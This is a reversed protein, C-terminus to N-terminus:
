KLYELFYEKDRLLNLVSQIREKTSHHKQCYLFGEGRIKNGKGPYKDIYYNYKEMFSDIDDREYSVYHKNDEFFYDMADCKDHFYLAGAGIYQWPRVDLYLPINKGMQYGLVAKASSALDATQFRTNGTEQNPFIKINLKDRLKQIFQNRSFHHENDGLLGTFALVCKFKSDQDSITCQYLCMYPWHFCPIKWIDSFKKTLNHNILAFDIFDSIDYSYRPETRADGMHYIIKTGYKKKIKRLLDFVQERYHPHTKLNGGPPFRNFVCHMLIFHPKMFDIQSEIKDLTQNFLYVPRTWVGCRIAGELAGYTFYSLYNAFDGLIVARLQKM